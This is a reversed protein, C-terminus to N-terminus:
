KYFHYIPGQESDECDIELNYDEFFWEDEKSAFYVRQNKETKGIIEYNTPDDITMGISFGEHIETNGYAKGFFRIAEGENLLYDNEFWQIAKDKLKIEM